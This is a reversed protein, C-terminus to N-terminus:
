EDGGLVVRKITVEGAHEHKVSDGYKEPWVAKLAIELMRDSKDFGRERCIDEITYKADHEAADFEAKFEPDKLWNYVTQRKVGAAEAATTIRPWERYADLFARKAEPSQSVRM